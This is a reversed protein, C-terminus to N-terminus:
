PQTEKPLLLGTVSNEAKVMDRMVAQIDAKTVAEVQAPWDLVEQPSMNISAARGFIQAMRYQSDRAYVLASVLQIKARALEGDSVPADILRAIEADMIASIETIDSGPLVDTYISFEGHDLRNVDAYASTQSSRKEDIVLRKHLRATSGGGLIEAAVDLAAFRSAAEKTYVPLRYLRQWVPQRVREDRYIIAEDWQAVQLDKARARPARPKGSPVLTGYYQQALPMLEALTINGTVVLIANDPAYFRRYFAAADEANLAAIEDRWGIVPIAYPTGEHLKARMQEGLLAAPRGDVRMSREELIVDREVAVIDKNIILNQMRDAELRMMDALKDRAIRQFYATYDYSTFANDQGGLRAVTKSFAGSAVNKTGRFMLHEFFHAIGSKGPPEDASGVRFWVMHTVVNARRDPVVIIDMGNDLRGTEVRLDNQNPQDCAAVLGLMAILLIHRLSTAM